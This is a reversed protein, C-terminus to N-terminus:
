PPQGQPPNRLTYLLGRAFRLIQGTPLGLLVHGDIAIFRSTQYIFTSCDDM